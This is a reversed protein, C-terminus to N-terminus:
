TQQQSASTNAGPKVQQFCLFTQHPPDISWSNLPCCFFRFIVVPSSGVLSLLVVKVTSFNLLIVGDVINHAPQWALPCLSSVLSAHGCQVLELFTLCPHCSGSVQHPQGRLGQREHHLRRDQRRHGPAGVVQNNTSPIRQNPSPHADM